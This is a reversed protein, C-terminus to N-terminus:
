RLEILGVDTRQGQLVLVSDLRAPGYTAGTPPLVELTYRGAALNVLQFFGLSDAYTGFTDLATHAFVYQQDSPDVQGVISGDEADDVLRLTARIVPKLNYNGSNGAQVVSRGADFDLLLM